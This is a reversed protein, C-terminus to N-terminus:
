QRRRWRLPGLVRRGREHRRGGRRGPHPQRGGARAVPRRRRPVRTHDLGRLGRDREAAEAGRRDGYLLGPTQPVGNKNVATLSPVMAVVSVAKVDRRHLGALARRPGWRWARNADHELQDPAPVVLRHPIRTRAVVTGDDEAAVAKVSTTGIDIGVTVPM